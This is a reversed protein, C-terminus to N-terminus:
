VHVMTSARKMPRSEVHEGIVTLAEADGAISGVIRVQRGKRLYEACNAGPKSCVRVPLATERTEVSTIRHSVITFTCSEVVGDYEQPTPDDALTGEILLSNLDNM